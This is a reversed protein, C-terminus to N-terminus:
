KVSVWEVTEVVKVQKEVRDLTDIEDWEPGYNDDWIFTNTMWTGWLEPNDPANQEDIELVWNTYFNSGRRHEKDWHVPENERVIDYWLDEGVEKRRITNVQTEGSM